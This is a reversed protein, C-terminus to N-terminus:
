TGNRRTLEANIEDALKWSTPNGMLGLGTPHFAGLEETSFAAWRNARRNWNESKSSTECERCSRWNPGFDSIDVGGCTPCPLLSVRRKPEDHIMAKGELDDM